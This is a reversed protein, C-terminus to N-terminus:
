RQKPKDKEKNPKETKAGGKKEETFPLYNTVFIALFDCASVM